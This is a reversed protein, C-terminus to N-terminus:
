TAGSRPELKLSRKYMFDEDIPDPCTVLKIIARVELLNYRTSQFNEIDRFVKAQMRRKAFNVTGGPLLDDNGDEIFTLDSLFIGLFPVLPLSLTRLLNRYGKCNGSYSMTETLSLFQKRRSKSLGDWTRKLRFIPASQLAGLGQMLGQFNQLTRLRSLIVIFHDLVQIRKKLNGEMIITKVYFASVQNFRQICRGVGCPHSSEEEVWKKNLLDQFSIQRFLNHDELTLQRAVELSDIAMVSLAQQKPVITKPPPREM